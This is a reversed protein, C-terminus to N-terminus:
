IWAAFTLLKHLCVAFLCQSKFQVRDDGGGNVRVPPPPPIPGLPSLGQVPTYARKREEAASGRGGTMANAWGVEARSFREAAAPMRRAQNSILQLALQDPPTKPGEAAM